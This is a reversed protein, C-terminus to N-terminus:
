PSLTPVKNPDCNKNDLSCLFIPTSIYPVEVDLLPELDFGSMMLANIVAVSRTFEALQDMPPVKELIEAAHRQFWASTKALYVPSTTGESNASTLSVPMRYVRFDFRPELVGM